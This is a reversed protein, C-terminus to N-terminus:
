RPLVERRLPRWKYRCDTLHLVSDLRAVGNGFSGGEFVESYLTVPHSWRAKWPDRDVTLIYLYGRERDVGLADYCEVLPEHLEELSSWASGPPRDLGPRTDFVGFLRGGSASPEPDVGLTLREGERLMTMEAAGFDHFKFEALANGIARMVPHNTESRVFFGGRRVSRDAGEYRVAARYSAQYFCVGFLSPVGRPRLDRLSSVLIQIWATGKHIEPELPPPLLAELADPEVAYNISLAEVWLTHVSTLWPISPCDEWSASPAEMTAAIEAQADLLARIGADTLALLPGSPAIEGRRQLSAIAHAADATAIGAAVLAGSLDEFTLGM